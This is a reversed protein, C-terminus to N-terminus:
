EPQYHFNIINLTCIQIDDNEVTPGIMEEAELSMPTASPAGSTILTVMVPNLKGRVSTVQNISPVGAVSAFSLIIMEFVLVVDGGAVEVSM